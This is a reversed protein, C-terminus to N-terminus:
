AAGAAGLPTVLVIKGFHGPAEMAAHAAAAEALPVTRVLPLAIRGAVLDPWVNRALSAAVAAKVARPQPRLTSGLISLRKGVVLGANITTASGGLTALLLIVGETAALEVDHALTEGGVLAVIRDVGRSGTLERVRAVVDEKKRDIVATAGLTAVYDAKDPSSVIAIVNAGRAAALAVAAGGIGGAAGHVLVHMGESVGARMMLTQEITFWTEPLAAGTTFDLRAPLPLAQGEPVAVYEAYGGGNCLAVVRDGVAHRTADPGAAAVIGSVELGPLPSAGPPPPYSGRRQQLDPANIGAAAVRIVVEGEGPVPRPLAVPRLVEPGGPSGIEIATMQESMSDSQIAVAQRALGQFTM